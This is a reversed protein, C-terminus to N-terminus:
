TWRGSPIPELATIPRRYLYTWCVLTAGSQELKAPREVREYEGSETVSSNDRTIGEYADLWALSAAPDALRYIEGHVLDAPTESSVVCPYWSVRYLRGQITADGIWQAEARLREGM